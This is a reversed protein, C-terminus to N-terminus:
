PLPILLVNLKKRKGRRRRESKLKKLLRKKWSKKWLINSYENSTIIHSQNYDIFPIKGITKKVFLHLLFLINAFFL